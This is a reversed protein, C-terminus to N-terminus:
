DYHLISQNCTVLSVRELQKQIGLELGWKFFFFFSCLSLTDLLFLSSYVSAICPKAALLSSWRAPCVVFHCTKKL